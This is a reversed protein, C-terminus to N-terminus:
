DGRLPPLPRIWAMEKFSTSVTGYNSNGSVFTSHEPNHNGFVFYLPKNLSSLIYEYYKLPLDGASIVCDVDAYREAINPSYVLPDTTDSICLIKM